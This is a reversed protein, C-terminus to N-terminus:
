NGTSVQTMDSLDTYQLHSYKRHIHMSHLLLLGTLFLRQWVDADTTNCARATYYEEKFM